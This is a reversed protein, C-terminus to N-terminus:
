TVAILHGLHPKLGPCTLVGTSNMGSNEVSFYMYHLDLMKFKTKLNSSINNNLWKLLTPDTKGFLQSDQM